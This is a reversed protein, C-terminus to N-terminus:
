LYTAACACKHMGDTRGATSPCSSHSLRVYGSEQPCALRVETKPTGERERKETNELQWAMAMSNTSIEPQDIIQIERYTNFFDRKGRGEM